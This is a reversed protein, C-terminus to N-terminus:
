SLFVPLSIAVFGWAARRTSASNAMTATASSTTATVITPATSSATATATTITSNDAAWLCDVRLSTPVGMFISTDACSRELRAFVSGPSCEFGPDQAQLVVQNLAIAAPSCLSDAYVKLIVAPQVVSADLCLVSSCEDDCSSLNAAAQEPGSCQRDEAGYLALRWVKAATESVMWFNQDRWFGEGGMCEDFMGHLARARDQCLEM